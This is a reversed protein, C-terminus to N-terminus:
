LKLKSRWDALKEKFPIALANSSSPAVKSDISLNVEKSAKAGNFVVKKINPYKTLFGNIDNLKANSITSDASGERTCSVYVDWIAIHNLLLCKIKEEYSTFMRGENVIVAMIKWFSNSSSAYYEGTKISQEGPMTGLILIESNNDVVPDFCSKTMNGIIPEEITKSCIPTSTGIPVASIELKFKNTLHVTVKQGAYINKRKSDTSLVEELDRTQANSGKTTIIGNEIEATATYSKRSGACKFDQELLQISDTAPSRQIVERIKPLAKRWINTYLQKGM